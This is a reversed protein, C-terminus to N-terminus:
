IWKLAVYYLVIVISSGKYAYKIIEQMDVREIEMKFNFIVFDRFQRMKRKEEERKREEKERRAKHMGHRWLMDWIRQIAAGSLIFM